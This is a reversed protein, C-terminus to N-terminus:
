QSDESNAVFECSDSVLLFLSLDYPADLLMVKVIDMALGDIEEAVNVLETHQCPHGRVELLLELAIWRRILSVATTAAYVDGVFDFLSPTSLKCYHLHALAFDQFKPCGLKDGLVWADLSMMPNVDDAIVTPSEDDNSTTWAYLWRIFWEFVAPKDQLKIHNDLTTSRAGNFWANFFLSVHTLLNKPLMWTKAETEQGVTVAVATRGQLLDITPKEVRHQQVNPTATAM